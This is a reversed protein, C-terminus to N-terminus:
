SAGNKDTKIYLDTTYSQATLEDHGAQGPMKKYQGPSNNM